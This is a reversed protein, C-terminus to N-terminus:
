LYGEVRGGRKARGAGSPLFDYASLDCDQACLTFAGAEILGKKALLADMDTVTFGEPITVSVEESKGSRLADIIEPVSQSRRLLFDGAQLSATVGHMRAYLAFAQGSRIIEKLELLAGIDRVSLGSQVTIPRRADDSSDLPRLSFQYWAIASVLLIAPLLIVKKM